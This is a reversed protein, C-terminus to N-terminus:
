TKYAVVLLKRTKKLQCAFIHLTLKKRKCEFPVNVQCHLHAGCKGCPVKSPAIEPDASGYKFMDDQSLLKRASEPEQLVTLDYSINQLM